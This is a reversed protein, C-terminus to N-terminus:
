AKGESPPKMPDKIRTSLLDKFWSGESQPGGQKIPNCRDCSIFVWSSGGRSAVFQTMRPDQDLAAPTGRQEDGCFDCTLIEETKRGM